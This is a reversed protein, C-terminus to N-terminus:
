KRIITTNNFNGEFLGQVEISPSIIPPGTIDVTSGIFDDGKISISTYVYNRGGKITKTQNLKLQEHKKMDLISIKTKKM